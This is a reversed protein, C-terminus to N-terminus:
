SHRCGDLVHILLRDGVLRVLLQFVTSFGNRRDNIRKQPPPAVLKQAHSCEVGLLHDISELLSCRRHFAPGQRRDGALFTLQEDRLRLFIKLIEGHDTIGLGRQFIADQSQADIQSRRRSRQLYRIQM